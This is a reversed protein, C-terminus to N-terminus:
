IREKAEAWDSTTIKGAKLAAERDNHIAEHRAKCKSEQTLTLRAVPFKFSIM